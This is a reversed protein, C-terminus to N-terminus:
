IKATKEEGKFKLDYKYIFAQAEKLVGNSFDKYDFGESKIVELIVEPYESAMAYYTKVAQKLEIVNQDTYYKYDFRTLIDILWIIRNKIGIKTENDIM